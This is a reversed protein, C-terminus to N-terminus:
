MIIIYKFLLFSLFKKDNRNLSKIYQKTKNDEQKQYKYFDEPHIEGFPTAIGKCRFNPPLILSEVSALSDLYIYGNITEPLVLGEASTLSSLDLDGNLTEPLILKEANTLGNLYLDGDITKNRIHTAQMLLTTIM